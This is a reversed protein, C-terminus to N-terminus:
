RFFASEEVGASEWPVNGRMFEPVCGLLALFKALLGTSTHFIRFNAPTRNM